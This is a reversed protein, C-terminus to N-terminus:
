GDIIDKSNIFNSFGVFMVLLEPRTATVLQTRAQFTAAVRGRGKKAEAKPNSSSGGFM